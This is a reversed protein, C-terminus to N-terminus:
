NERSFDTRRLPEGYRLLVTSVSGDPGVTVVYLRDYETAEDIDPGPEGGLLGVLEPTTDSHGVVLHRGGARKLDAALAAMEEWDYLSIECGLREALPAATQRTRKFDTSYIADVGADALTRALERARQLGAANLEPDKGDGEGKEAHRVLYIVVTGAHQPDPTVSEGGCVSSISLPLAAALCTLFPLFRKM